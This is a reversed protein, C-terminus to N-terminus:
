LKCGHQYDKIVPAAHQYDKVIPTMEPKGHNHHFVIRPQKRKQELTRESEQEATEVPEEDIQMPEGRKLEELEEIAASKDKDAGKIATNLQDQTVALEMMVKVSLETPPKAVGKSFEEIKEKLEKRNKFFSTTLLEHM